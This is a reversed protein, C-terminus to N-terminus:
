LSFKKFWKHSKADELSIRLDASPEMLRMILDEAEESIEDFFIPPPIYFPENSSADNLKRLDLVPFIDGDEEEDLVEINTDIKMPRQGGLLVDLTDKRSEVEPAEIVEYPLYGVLMEYLVVGLSYIDSRHDFDPTMRRWAMLHEPAMYVPTGGVVEKEDQRVSFGFDALKVSGEKQDLLFNAPKIDCHYINQSHIYEISKLMDMFYKAALSESLACGQAADIADHLSGGECAELIMYLYPKSPESRTEEQDMSDDADEDVTECVFPTWSYFSDVMNVVNPHELPHHVDVECFSNEDVEQVKLAVQYGSQTEKALYVSATGGAGLKRVYIFDDVNWEQIGLDCLDGEIDEGVRFKCVLDFKEKREKHHPTHFTRQKIPLPSPLVGKPTRGPTRVAHATPSLFPTKKKPTPTTLVVRSHTKLNETATPNKKQRNPDVSQLAGRPPTSISTTTM